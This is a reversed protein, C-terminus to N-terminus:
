TAAENSSKGESSSAGVIVMVMKTNNSIDDTKGSIILVVGTAPIYKGGKIISM